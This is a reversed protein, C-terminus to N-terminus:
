FGKGETDAVYAQKMLSLYKEEFYKGVVYSFPTSLVVEGMDANLGTFYILARELRLEMDGVYNRASEEFTRVICQNFVAKAVHLQNCSLLTSTSTMLVNRVLTLDDIIGNLRLYLSYSNQISKVM